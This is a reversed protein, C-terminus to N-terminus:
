AAVPIAGLVRRCQLLLLLLCLHAHPRVPLLSREVVERLWAAYRQSGEPVAAAAAAAAASLCLTHM